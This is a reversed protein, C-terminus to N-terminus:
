KEEKNMENEFKTCFYNYILGMVVALLILTIGYIVALNQGWLFETGLLKPWITGILVFGTYIILYVFFLKIGLKSKREASKDEGLEVSPEHIM